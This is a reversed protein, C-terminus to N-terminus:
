QILRLISFEQERITTHLVRQGYITLNMWLIDIVIEQFKDHSRIINDGLIGSLNAIADVNVNTMEDLKKIYTVQNNLSNVINQQSSQLENFFFTMCTHLTAFVATGFLAKLISGGFNVLGRRPDLKPLMQKFSHLKSGLVTLLTQIARLESIFTFEKRQKEATLLDVKITVIAEEHSWMSM